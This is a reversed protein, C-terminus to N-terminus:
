ARGTLRRVRASQERQTEDLALELQQLAAEYEPILHKRLARLRRTARALERALERDAHDAAAFRGAARTAEAAARAALAAASSGGLASPNLPGPIAIATVAPLRAGMMNAWSLELTADARVNRSLVDLRRLGDTVLARRGWLEAEAAAALWAGRANQLEDRLRARETLLVQRKRDLLEAGRAAIALREGLWVRGSRGPPIRAPM